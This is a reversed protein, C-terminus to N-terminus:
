QPGRVLEISDFASFLTLFNRLHTMGRRLGLVGVRLKEMSDCKVTTKM